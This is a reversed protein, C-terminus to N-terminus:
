RISRTQWIFNTSCLWENEVQTLIMQNTFMACKRKQEICKLATEAIDKFETKQADTLPAVIRQYWDVDSHEMGTMLQYFTVYEDMECEEKDLNTDFEEM